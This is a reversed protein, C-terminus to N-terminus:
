DAFWAFFGGPDCVSLLFVTVWGAVLISLTAPHARRGSVRLFAYAPVAWLIALLGILLTILVLTGHIPMSKPDLPSLVIGEVGRGPDFRRPYPWYGLIWRARLVLAAFLALAAVPAPWLLAYFVRVASLIPGPIPFKRLALVGAAVLMLAALGSVIRIADDVLYM